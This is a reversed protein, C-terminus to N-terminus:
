KRKLVAFLQVKEQCTSNILDSIDLLKHTLRGFLEDMVQSGFHRSFMGEMAARVHTVLSPIDVPGKMWAAPNTLEMREIEFCGNKEVIGAMEEPSAAYFALNFSDVEGEEIIGEKAMDMLSSSISDYLMGTPIQSHPMGKPIGTMIMVMMGQPVLEKARANLFREMDEAFQCAYAEIVENPASTYHIRGKNWAPSAKNQLEEPLKSLWHLSFSTHVFHISSEPFLRGHFSGPVGAALYQRDQPLSTFLTNFDNSELDNFFVQFEPMQDDSDHPCSQSIQSKYKRQMAELITQITMFTNQGTACGLDALRITNSVSSHTKMDLKERIEEIIKEREVGASQKQYYSNKSYSYIGNGGNMPLSSTVPKARNEHDGNIINLLDASGLLKGEQDREAM